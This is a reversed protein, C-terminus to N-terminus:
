RQSADIAGRLGDIAISAEHRLASRAHADIAPASRDALLQLTPAVRVAARRMPSLAAELRRASWRGRLTGRLTATAADLATAYGVDSTRLDALARGVAEDDVVDDDRQGIADRLATAAALLRAAARRVDPLPDATFVVQSCVLGILAGIAADVIRGQVAGPQTSGIVLVASGGAQIVMVANLGFSAAALMAAGTVVAIRVTQDIGPVRRVLEGVVIGIAVGTLMGIAQRRRDAVGPSLCVIAAIAAFVPQRDGTTHRALWWAVAAAGASVAIDRLAKSWHRAPADLWHLLPVM